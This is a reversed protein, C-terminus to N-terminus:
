VQSQLIPKSTFKLYIHKLHSFNYNYNNKPDKPNDNQYLIFSKPFDYLFYKIM